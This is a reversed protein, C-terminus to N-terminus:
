SALTWAEYAMGTLVSFPDAHRVVRPASSSEPVACFALSSTLREKEGIYPVLWPKLPYM